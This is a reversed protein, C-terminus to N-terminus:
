AQGSKSLVRKMAAHLTLREAREALAEDTDAAIVVRARAIQAELRRRRSNLQALEREADALAAEVSPRTEELVRVLKTPRTSTTM